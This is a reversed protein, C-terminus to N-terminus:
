RQRTSRRQRHVKAWDVSEALMQARIAREHLALVESDPTRARLDDLYLLADLENVVFVQHYLDDKGLPYSGPEFVFFAWHYRQLAEEVDRCRGAYFEGDLKMADPQTAAVDEVVVGVFSPDDADNPVDFPDSILADNAEQRRRSAEPGREEPPLAFQFATGTGSCMDCQGDDYGSGYCNPCDGSYFSSDDM